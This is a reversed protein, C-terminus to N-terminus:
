EKNLTMEINIVMTENVTDEDFDDELEQISNIVLKSESLSVVEFMMEDETGKDLTLTKGDASLERTGENDESSPDTILYTDNSKITIVVTSEPVFEDEIMGFLLDDYIEAESETLGGEDMLYQVLTKDDISLEMTATSFIWEGILLDSPTSEDDDNCSSFFCTVAITCLLGVTVLAKRPTTKTKM